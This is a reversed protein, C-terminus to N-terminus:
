GIKEECLPSPVKAVVDVLLFADSRLWHGLISEVERELGADEGTLGQWPLLVREWGEHDALGALEIASRELLDLSVKQLRPDHRIPFSVARCTRFAHVRAGKKQHRLHVNWPFSMWRLCLTRAEINNRIIGIPGERTSINIPIIRGDCPLKWFNGTIKQM